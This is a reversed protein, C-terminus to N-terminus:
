VRHHPVYCLWSPATTVIRDSGCTFIPSIQHSSNHPLAEDSGSASRQPHHGMHGDMLDLVSAYCVVAGHMRVIVGFVNMVCCLVACCM